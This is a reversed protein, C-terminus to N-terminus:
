ASRDQLSTSGEHLFATTDRHFLFYALLVEAALSVVAFAVFIPPPGTRLAAAVAIAVLVLLVALSIRAWEHGAQVFVALIWLLGAVVLFMVIAVATFGPVTVPGQKVAELGGAALVERATPNGEAWSEILQDELVWTLVTAVAGVALLFWVVQMARNVSRPRVAAEHGTQGTM